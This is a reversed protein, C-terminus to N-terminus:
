GVDRSVGTNLEIDLGSILVDDGKEVSRIHVKQIEEQEDLWDIFSEMQRHTKFKVTLQMQTLDFHVVEISVECRVFKEMLRWNKIYDAREKQLGLWFSWRTYIKRLKPYIVKQGSLIKEQRIIKQQILALSRYNREIEDWFFCSSASLFVSICVLGAIFFRVEKRIRLGHLHRRWHVFNIVSPSITSLCAVFQAREKQSSSNFIANIQRNVGILYIPLGFDSAMMKLRLILDSKVGIGYIEEQKKITDFCLENKHLGSMDILQLKLLQHQQKIDMGNKWKGHIDLAVEDPLIVRVEDIDSITFELKNFINERELSFVDEELKQSDIFYCNKKKKFLFANTSNSSFDLVLIVSPLTKKCIPM